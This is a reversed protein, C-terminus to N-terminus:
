TQAPWGALPWRQVEGDDTLRRELHQAVLLLEAEEVCGFDAAADVVHVQTVRGQVLPEVRHQLGDHALHLLTLGPTTTTSENRVMMRAAPTAPWVAAHVQLAEQFAQRNMEGAPLRRGKQDAFVGLAVAGLVGTKVTASPMRHSYWLM